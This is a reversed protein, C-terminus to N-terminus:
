MMSCGSKRSKEATNNAPEKNEEKVHLLQAVTLDLVTRPLLSFFTDRQQSLGFTGIAIDISNKDSALLSPNDKIYKQYETKKAADLTSDRSLFRLALTPDRFILTQIKAHRADAPLIVRTWYQIAPSDHRSLSELMTTLADTLNDHKGLTKAFNEAIVLLMENYLREKEPDKIETMYNLNAAGQEMGIVVNKRLHSMMNNVNTISTHHGLEVARLNLTIAKRFREEYPLNKGAVGNFYLNGYAHTYYPNDLSAAAQEYYKM